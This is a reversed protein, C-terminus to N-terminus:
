TLTIPFTGVGDGSLTIPFTGGFTWNTTEEGEYTFYYTNEDILNNDVLAQYQQTTLTVMNSQVGVGGGSGGESGGVNIQTPEGSSWGGSKSPTSVDKKLVYKQDIIQQLVILANSVDQAVVYDGKKQFRQNINLRLAEFASDLVYDDLQDEVAQVEAKTAYDTIIPQYTNSAETRTLYDGIPQYTSQAETKTLYSTLNIQPDRRGVEVWNNNIYRWEIYVLEDNQTTEVLYVKNPSPNTIDVLSDTIVFVDTDLTSSIVNNIISIGLGPTLTDQKGSLGTTYVQTTVYNSLDMNDVKNQLEAKTAYDRLTSNDVKGQLAATVVRNEVPNSSIISLQDDVVVYVEEEPIVVTDPIEPLPQSGNTITYVAAEEVFYDKVWQHTAYSGKRQYNQQLYENQVFNVLVDRIEQVSSEEAYASLDGSVVYDSRKEQYLREADSVKLYSTLDVEPIAQGVLVWVGNKVRYEQYTYEGNGVPTELLYIKDENAEETDPLETVIIYLNTDLTTSIVNTDPDIDIGPGEVLVNQKTRLGAEYTENSVLSELDSEDVKLQLAEYIKKNQVPNTSTSSIDNDITIPDPTNELDEYDGSFAVQSLEAKNNEVTHNLDDIKSSLVGFQRQFDEDLTFKASITNNNSDTFTITGNNESVSFIAVDLGNKFTLTNQDITATASGDCVYEKGRAWIRLNSKIFVISDERIRGNNLDHIFNNYENYTLFQYNIKM